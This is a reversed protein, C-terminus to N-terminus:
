VNEGEKRRRMSEQSVIQLADVSAVGCRIRHPTFAGQVEGHKEGEGTGDPLLSYTMCSASIGRQAQLRRAAQAHVKALRSRIQLPSDKRGKVAAELVLVDRHEVANPIGTVQAIPKSVHPSTTVFLHDKPDKERRGSFHEDNSILVIQVASRKMVGMVFTHRRKGPMSALWTDGEVRILDIVEDLKRQVLDPVKLWSALADATDKGDAGQGVGCYAILASWHFCTITVQKPSADSVVDGTLGNTIQLDTSQHIGWPSALTITLTM